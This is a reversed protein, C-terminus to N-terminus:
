EIGMLNFINTIAKDYDPQSEDPKKDVGQRLCRLYIEPLGVDLGVEKLHQETGGLLDYVKRLDFKFLLMIHNADLLDLLPNNPDRKKLSQYAQRVKSDLRGLYDATGTIAKTDIDFAYDPDLARAKLLTGGDDFEAEWHPEEESGYARVKSQYWVTQSNKEVSSWEYTWGCLLKGQSDYKSMGTKNGEPNYSSRYVFRLEGKSRVVEHEVKPVTRVSKDLKIELTEITKIEHEPLIKVDPLGETQEPPELKKKAM